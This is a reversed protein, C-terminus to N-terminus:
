KYSDYTKQVSEGYNQTSGKSGGSPGGNHIRGFDGCTPSHGDTSSGYRNMYQSVCQRSCDMEKTCTQWDGGPSGCDKWYSEKIQFPGCSQSGNDMRCKGIQSECGEQKCISDLCRNDIGRSSM